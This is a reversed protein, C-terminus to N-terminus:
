QTKVNTATPKPAAPVSTFDTAQLIGVGIPTPVAMRYPVMLRTGAVPALWVEMDRQDALYKIAAREPVHGAIPIFQIACVVVTGQYGKNSKVKDLRKFALQLDYRMRGDFIALTRQCVEPVFTDGTGPVRMLSATMPDSVGRRHAETIPIRDPSPSVPPDAMYEKVTGASLAMRVEDLKKDTFVSSAFSNAVLQGGSVTGRSASSGQGGAFLRMFGTTAGSAVATFQDDSVDILWQGRGIPVGGLSATYRAELKGQALLRSGGADAAMVALVAAAAMTTPALNSFNM